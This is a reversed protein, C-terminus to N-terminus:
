KQSAVDQAAAMLLCGAVYKFQPGHEQRTDECPTADGGSGLPQPRCSWPGYSYLSQLLYFMQHVDYVHLWAVMAMAMGRSGRLPTPAKMYKSILCCAFKLFISCSAHLLVRVLPRRPGRCVGTWSSGLLPSPIFSCVDELDMQSGLRCNDM